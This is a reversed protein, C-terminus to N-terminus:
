HLRDAEIDDGTKQPGPDDPVFPTPPVASVATKQGSPKTAQANPLPQRSREAILAAPINPMQEQLLVIGRPQDQPIKWQVAGLEFSVPGVPAWAPLVQGDAMWVADRPAKMAREFWERMAGIDNEAESLRSMLLCVRQTPAENLLPKLANRALAFDRAEAAASAYAILSEPENPKLRLLNQARKLRDKATDGKRLNVYLHALSPHPSIKWVRELIKSASKFDEIEAYLQAAQVAAPALTPDLLYAEVSLSRAQERHTELLMTAKATLAVARLRRAEVRDIMRYRQRAKITDLASDWKNERAQTILLATSAWPLDAKMRAAAEAYAAANAADGARQAEVYLGRLGLLRTQPNQLMAEFSLRAKEKDGTLQATQSRLLLTLPTDGLYNQATKAARQALRVDWAGVAVLGRAIAELGKNKRRMSLFMRFAEPGQLIVRLLQIVFILLAVFAGLALAAVFMSTEFRYGFWTLMLHGPKEALWALGLSLLTILFFFAFFRRLLRV